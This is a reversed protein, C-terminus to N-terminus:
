TERGISIKTNTRWKLNRNNCPSFSPGLQFSRDVEFKQQEVPEPFAWTSFKPPPQETCMLKVAMDSNEQWQDM